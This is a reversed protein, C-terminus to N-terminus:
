LYKSCEKIKFGISVGGYTSGSCCDEQKLKFFAQNCDMFNVGLNKCTHGISTHSQCMHEGEAKHPQASADRYYEDTMDQIYDIEIVESHASLSLILFFMMLLFRM